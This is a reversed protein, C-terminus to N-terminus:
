KIQRGLSMPGNLPRLPTLNGKIQGIEGQAAHNTYTRTIYQWFAIISKATAIMSTM